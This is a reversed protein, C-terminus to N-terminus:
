YRCKIDEQGVRGKTAFFSIVSLLVKGKFGAGGLNKKNLINKRLQSRATAAANDQVLPQQEARVFACENFGLPLQHILATEPANDAEPRHTRL